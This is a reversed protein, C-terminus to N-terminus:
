NVFIKWLFFAFLAFHVLSLRMTWDSSICSWHLLYKTLWLPQVCMAGTQSGEHRPLVSRPSVKLSFAILLTKGMANQRNQHYHYRKRTCSDVDDLCSPPWCFFQYWDSVRLKKAHKAQRTRRTSHKKRLWFLREKGPKSRLKVGEVGM